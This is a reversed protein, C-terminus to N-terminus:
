GAVEHMRLLQMLKASVGVTTQKLRQPHAYFVMKSGGGPQDERVLAIAGARDLQKLSDVVVMAYDGGEPLEGPAVDGLYLLHCIPGAAKASYRVVELSRGQAKRTAVQESLVKFLGPDASDGICLRIPSDASAFAEPPWTLFFTLRFLFAARVVTETTAPAAGQATSACLLLVVGAGIRRWGPM